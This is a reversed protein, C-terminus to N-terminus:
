DRTAEATSKCAHWCRSQCNHWCSTVGSGKELGVALYPEGYEKVWLEETSEFTKQLLPLEGDGKGFGGDHDLIGGLLRQCDEFYARPHLMHLHWFEDIDRTPAIPQEPYKAALRLFREYNSLARQTREEDWDKPFNDSRKAARLLDVSISREMVSM